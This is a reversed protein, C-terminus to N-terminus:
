SGCAASRPWRSSRTSSATFGEVARTMAEACARCAGSAAAAVRRGAPAPRAACARCAARASDGGRRAGCSRRGEVVRRRRPAFRGLVAGGARGRRRPWRWPRGPRGRERRGTAPRQNAFVRAKAAAYEEVTGHRDLHDPSFNLLVAIWPGSRTSPRSSFAARRSSTSRRTPPRDDVQASLACASTAGSSCADLGGAEADAGRADDDDVQGEDRHDRRHPRALWRSALELEGIVPVGAARAAARSPRSRGAAGRPQARRSRRTRSRRRTTGGLELVSARRRAANARRHPRARGLTVRAGRARAAGRGRHRQAGRGVVTVGQRGRVSFDGMTTM